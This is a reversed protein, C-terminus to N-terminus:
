SDLAAPEVFMDRAGRKIDDILESTSACTWIRVSPYPPRPLGAVGQMLFPLQKPDRVVYIGPKGMGIAYGAEFLVSSVVREPYLMMFNRSRSLAELDRMIAVDPPTFSGSAITEGADYIRQMGAHVRLAEKVALTEQRQREYAAPDDHGAMVSAVFVDYDFRLPRKPRPNKIDRWLFYIGSAVLLVGVTALVGRWLLEKVLVNEGLLPLSTSAALLIFVLGSMLILAAPRDFLKTLLDKM